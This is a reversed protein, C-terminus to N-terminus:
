RQRRGGVVDFSMADAGGVADTATHKIAGMTSFPHADPGALLDFSMRDAAGVVDVLMRDAGGIADFQDAVTQFVIAAADDTASAVLSLEQNEKVEVTTSDIVQITTLLDNM